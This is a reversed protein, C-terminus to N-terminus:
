SYRNWRHTIGCRRIRRTQKAQATAEWHTYSRQLGPGEAIALVCSLITPLASSKIDSYQAVAEELINLSAHIYCVSLLASTFLM